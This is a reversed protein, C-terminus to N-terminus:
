GLLAAGADLLTRGGFVAALAALVGAVLVLIRRSGTPDASGPTPDHPHGLHSPITGGDPQQSMALDEITGHPLVWAHATGSPCAM